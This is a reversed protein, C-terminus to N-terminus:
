GHGFGCLRRVHWFAPAFVASDWDLVATITHEAVAATPDLLTNRSHFDLHALCIDLNTLWSGAKLESIITRLSGKMKLEFLDGLNKQLSHKEQLTCL